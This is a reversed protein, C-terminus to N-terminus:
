MSVRTNKKAMGLVEQPAHRGAVAAIAGLSQELRRDKELWFNKSKDDNASLVRFM